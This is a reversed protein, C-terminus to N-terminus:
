FILFCGRDMAGDELAHVNAIDENVDGAGTANDEALEGLAENIAAAHRDCEAQDAPGDGTAGADLEAVVTTTVADGHFGGKVIAASTTATQTATATAGHPMAQAPGATLLATISLAAVALGSRLKTNTMTTIEEQSPRRWRGVGM